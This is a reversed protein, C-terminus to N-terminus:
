SRRGPKEGSILITGFGSSSDLALVEGSLRFGALLCAKVSRTATGKVWGVDRGGIVVVPPDGLRIRVANGVAFDDTSGVEVSLERTAECASETEDRSQRAEGPADGETTVATLNMPQSLPLDESSKSGRGM